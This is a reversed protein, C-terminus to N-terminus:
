SNYPTIVGIEGFISKFSSFSIIYEILNRTLKAEDKNFKSGSLDHYEKSDVIDFFIM